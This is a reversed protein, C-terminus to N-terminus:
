QLEHRYTDRQLTFLFFSKYLNIDLGNHNWLVFDFLIIKSPGFCSSAAPPQRSRSPRGQARSAASTERACFRGERERSSAASTERACFRGERERSAAASTERACFRGERERSAAASTERACFRGERERSAAPAPTHPQPM